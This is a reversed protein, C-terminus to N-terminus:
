SLPSYETPYNKGIAQVTEPGKVRVEEFYGAVVATDAPKPELTLFAGGGVSM